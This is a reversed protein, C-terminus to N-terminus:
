DQSSVVKKKAYQDPLFDDGFGYVDVCPQRKKKTEGEVRKKIM